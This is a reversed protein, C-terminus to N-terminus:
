VYANIYNLVAIAYHNFAWNFITVACCDKSLELQFYTLNSYIVRNIVSVTFNYDTDNNKVWCERKKELHQQDNKFTYLKVMAIILTM